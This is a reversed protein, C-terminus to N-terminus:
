LEKTLLKLRDKRVKLQTFGTSYYHINFSLHELNFSCFYNRFFLVKYNEYLLSPLLYVYILLMEGGLYFQLSLTYDHWFIKAFFNINIIVWEVM